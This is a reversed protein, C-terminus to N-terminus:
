KIPGYIAYPKHLFFAWLKDGYSWHWWERSYNVFGAQIMIDKLLKRNFYQEKTLEIYDTFCTVDHQFLNGMDLYTMNSKEVLAVDIAGGTVHPSFIDPDSAMSRTLNNLEEISMTPNIRRLKEQVQLYVEKQFALTRQAEILVIVYSDPLLQIAKHLQDRVTVRAFPTQSDKIDPIEPQVKSPLILRPLDLLNVMREGCDVDPIKVVEADDIRLLESYM